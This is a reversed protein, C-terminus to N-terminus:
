PAQEHAAGLRRLLSPPSKRAPKGAEALAQVLCGRSDQFDLAAQPAGVQLLQVRETVRPPIGPGANNGHGVDGEDVRSAEGIYGTLMVVIVDHHCAEMNGPRTLAASRHRRTSVAIHQRQGEVV